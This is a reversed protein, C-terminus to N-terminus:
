KVETKHEMIYNYLMMELDNYSQLIRYDFM